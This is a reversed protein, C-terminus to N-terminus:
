KVIPSSLRAEDYVPPFYGEPAKQILWEKADGVRSGSGLFNGKIDFETDRDGMQINLIKQGRKDKRIRTECFGEPMFPENFSRNLEKAVKEQWGM